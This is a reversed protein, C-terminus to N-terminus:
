EYQQGGKEYIDVLGYVEHVYRGVVRQITSMPKKYKIVLNSYSTAERTMRGAIVVFRRSKKSGDPPLQEIEKFEYPLGYKDAVIEYNRLKKERPHIIENASM